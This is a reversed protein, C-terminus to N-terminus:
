EGSMLMILTIMNPFVINLINYFFSASIFYLYLRTYRRNQNSTVIYCM